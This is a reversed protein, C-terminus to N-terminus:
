FLSGQFASEEDRKQQLLGALLSFDTREIQVKAEKQFLLSAFRGLAPFFRLQEKGCGKGTRRCAATM